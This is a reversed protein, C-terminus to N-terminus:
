ARYDILHHKDHSEQPAEAKPKEDAEPPAQPQRGKDPTRRQQQQKQDTPAIGLVNGLGEIPQVSSYESDVM